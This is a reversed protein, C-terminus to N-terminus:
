REHRTGSRTMDSRSAVVDNYASELNKLAREPAFEQEWLDRAGEGLRQSETDDLLQEIARAWAQPDDPPVLLGSRGDGVLEPIGGMRSAIVPVGAAFAEIVARPSGEYCTSPFVLARADRFLEVLAAPEVAGRFEVNSPALARLRQGEDGDGV